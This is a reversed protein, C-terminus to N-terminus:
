RPRSCDTTHFGQSFFDLVIASKPSSSYLCISHTSAAATSLAMVSFVPSSHVPFSSSEATADVLQLSWRSRGPLSYLAPHTPENAGSSLCTSTKKWTCPPALDPGQLSCYWRGTLHTMHSNLSIDSGLIATISMNSTGPSRLRLRLSNTQSAKIRFPM